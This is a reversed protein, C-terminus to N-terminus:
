QEAVRLFPTVKAPQKDLVGQLKLDHVDLSRLALADLLTRAEEETLFRVRQNDQKPKKVRRCPCDGTVISRDAARNWVLSV